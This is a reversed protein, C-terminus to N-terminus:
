VMKDRISPAGWNLKDRVIAFHSHDSNQMLHFKKTHVTINLPFASDSKFRVSGDILIRPSLDSQSSEVILQTSNDFIVSRNGFTHPCIPTM